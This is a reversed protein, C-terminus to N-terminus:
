KQTDIGGFFHRDIDRHNMILVVMWHQNITVWKWPSYIQKSPWEWFGDWVNGWSFGQTQKLLKFFFDALLPNGMPLFLFMKMLDLFIVSSIGVDNIDAPHWCTAGSTAFAASGSRRRTTGEHCQSDTRAQAVACSSGASIRRRDPFFM